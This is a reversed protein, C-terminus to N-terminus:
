SVEKLTHFTPHEYTGKHLEAQQGKSELIKKAGLMVDLHGALGNPHISLCKTLATIDEPRFEVAFGKWTYNQWRRHKMIIAIIEDPLHDFSTWDNTKM